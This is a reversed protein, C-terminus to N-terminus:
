RSISQAPGIQWVRKLNDADGSGADREVCFGAEQQRQKEHDRRKRMTM